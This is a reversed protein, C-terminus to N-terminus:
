AIWRLRAQLVVWRDGQRALLYEYGVANIGNLFSEVDIQVENEKEQITGFGLWIGDDRVANMKDRQIVTQKTAFEVRPALDQLLSLLEPPTPDGDWRQAAPDLSTALNPSVFIVPNHQYGTMKLAPDVLIGNGLDFHYHAVTSYIALRDAEGLAPMTAVPVLTPAPPIPALGNCAVLACVALILGLYLRKM